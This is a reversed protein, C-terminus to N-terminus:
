ATHPKLGYPMAEIGLVSRRVTELAVAVSREKNIIRDNTFLTKLAFHRDQSWYGIWVTGVPKEPTGGGPGAIGTTSVGIDAGTLAAVGKAMQLAVPKSVAGYKSFDQDAVELLKKKVSNAYAVVGGLFYDSSGDINTLQNCLMGGTCSEAVAINLGHQRLVNGVAESLTLDKGEGVILHRAKNSIYDAVVEIRNLVEEQNGGTGSIRIRVGQLNPLYAVSVGKQMHDDLSGILEDSLTSEGIGATLLYRSYFFADNNKAVQRIKPLVHRNMLHKMEYPIGPLVALRRGDAEFWMGPATGQKNFLVECNDPVEAQQYNSPTFPINRKEFVSKIFDLTPQHVVLDSKFIEQVAKKTLDDHTPGLGGTTIVLDAESMSQQITAKILELDDSITHVRSVEVGHEALFQGLWSANTNITDGMLLENGISIVQCKM